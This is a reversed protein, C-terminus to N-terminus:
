LTGIIAYEYISVWIRTKNVDVHCPYCNWNRKQFFFMNSIKGFRLM